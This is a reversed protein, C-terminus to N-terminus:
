LKPTFLPMHITHSCLFNFFSLRVSKKLESAEADESSARLTTELAKAIHGQDLVYEELAPLLARAFIKQADRCSLWSVKSSKDQGYWTNVAWPKASQGKKYLNGLIALVGSSERRMRESPDSLTVLLFPLLVQLDLDFDSSTLV